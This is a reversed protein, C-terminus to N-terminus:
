NYVRITTPSLQEVRYQIMPYEKEPSQGTFLSYEANDCPCIAKIGSLDMSSCGTISQNPCVADFAVYMSGTYMIFIKGQIGVGAEYYTIPNGPSLLPSNLPLNLNIASSTFRYTPLYPNNNNVSDKSCSISLFVIILLLFFRKM